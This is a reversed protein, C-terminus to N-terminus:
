CIRPLPDGVLMDMVRTGGFPTHLLVRGWPEERVEGVIQAHQGHPHQRMAALVDEAVSKDVVAVLKGENAVHLPDIGLIECAARVEEKVPVSAEDIVRAVGSHQAIENLVTVVGGRTPDKLCHVHTTVELMAKVLSALPATDSVIDTELDIGGRAIMIAMGHDGIYGSLIVKDGPKANGASISVPRRIVGVGATNIFVRDAKGRNVVKTDGTAIVVGAEACAQAMSNAIRRLDDVPFGEELIFGASLYLPEAGSM